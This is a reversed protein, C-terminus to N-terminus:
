LCSHRYSDDLDLAMILTSFQLDDAQPCVTAGLTTAANQDQAYEANLVPKGQEIFPSLLDCEQYEFCQENVAFDFYDRLAVIQSLDNKLGVSLDRLHAENAIFRNYALQDEATFSFGSNNDFGDMNDPEVGDCGRVVALDLRAQMIFRLQANSIDLWREDNWGDLTNGLANAPFDGADDRWQEYSGASFYCIVKKGQGQLAAIDAASTDFLDIDYLDVAYTQNIVGVLQWQWTTSVPPRYWDGTTIPAIFGPPKDIGGPNSDCAMLVLGLAITVIHRYYFGVVRIISTFSISCSEISMLINM